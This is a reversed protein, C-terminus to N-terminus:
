MFGDFAKRVLATHVYHIMTFFDFVPLNTDKQIAQAYPPLDSCELLIAGADPHDRVLKQAVGVVEQQILESDLTGREELVAQRFEPQDQMGAIALPMEKTVGVSSFHQPTLAQSDATIVAVKRTRRLIQFIFPIQLLSSLFVPVEVAETVERQFLAMFGCAGTIAKVGEHQLELAADLFPQLLSKDRRALLREISADKVVKYRVPFPFTSANGVNGPVCPYRADLILIGISEGYWCQGKPGAQYLAM